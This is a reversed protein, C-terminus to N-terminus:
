HHMCAATYSLSGVQLGLGQVSFLMYFYRLLYDQLSYPINFSLGGNKRHCPLTGLTVKKEMGGARVQIYIISDLCGFELDHLERAEPDMLVASAGICTHSTNSPTGCPMAGALANGPRWGQPTICCESWLLNMHANPGHSHADHGRVKTPM